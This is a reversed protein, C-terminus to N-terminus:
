AYARSYGDLIVAGLSAGKAGADGMAPSLTLSSSAASVPVLTGALSQAGQPSFAANIDLIGRGYIPDTGAAGADRATSL